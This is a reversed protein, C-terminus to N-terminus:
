SSLSKMSWPEIIKLLSESGELSGASKIATNVVVEGVFM